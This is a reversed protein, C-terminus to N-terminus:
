RSSSRFLLFFYFFGAFRRRQQSTRCSQRPPPTFMPATTVRASTTIFSSLYINLLNDTRTHRVSTNALRVVVHIHVLLARAASWFSFRRRGNRNRHEAHSPLVVRTPTVAARASSRSHTHTHTDTEREDDRRSPRSCQRVSVGLARRRRRTSQQGGRSPLAAAATAASKVRVRQFCMEHFPCLWRRLRSRRGNTPPTEDARIRNTPPVTFLPSLCSAAATGAARRSPPAWGDGITACTAPRNHARYFLPFFFFVVDNKMPM